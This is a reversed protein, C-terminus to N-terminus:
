RARRALVPAEASEDEGRFVLSGRLEGVAATLRDRQLLHYRGQRKELIEEEQWAGLIRSVSRESAGIAVALDSQSRKLGLREGRDSSEGKLDFLSLVFNALKQETTMMHAPEFRAAMCFATATNKLCALCAQPSDRLLRLFEPRSIM